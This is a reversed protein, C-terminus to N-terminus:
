ATPSTTHSSPSSSSCGPRPPSGSPSGSGSATSSATCRSARRASRASRPTRTSHADDDRHHLVLAREAFFFFVFGAGVLTGVLQPDDVAEIAEPLVEFLAVAVVIGGTLAIATTLERALRLAVIGGALTPRRSADVGEACRRGSALGARVSRPPGYRRNVAAGCPASIDPRARRRATFGHRASRRREAESPAACLETEEVGGCSTCVLHHHHEPRCRVYTPRGEGLLPHVGGDRAAARRDPLDDRARAPARVPARSRAARRGHLQGRVRGRRAAVALRQATTRVGDPIVLESGRPSLLQFRNENEISRRMTEGSGSLPAAHVRPQECQEQDGPRESSRRGAGARGRLRRDDRGACM